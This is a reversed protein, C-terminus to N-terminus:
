GTFAPPDHAEGTLWEKAEAGWATERGAAERELELFEEWVPRAEEVRGARSLVAAHNYALAPDEPFRERAGPFFRLQEEVDGGGSGLGGVYAAHAVALANAARPDDPHAEAAERAHVLARAHQEDLVLASVLNLRAPLYGPEQEAAEELLSIAEEIRERYEAGDLCPSSRGTEGRLRTREALTKPDM